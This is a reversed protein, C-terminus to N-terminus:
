QEEKYKKYVRYARYSGYVMLIIALGIRNTEPLDEPYGTVLILIGLGLFVSVM